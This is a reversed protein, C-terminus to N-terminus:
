KLGSSVVGSLHITATSFDYPDVRSHLHFTTSPIHFARFSMVGSWISFRGDLVKSVHFLSKRDTQISVYIAYLTRNSKTNSRTPQFVPALNKLWDSPTAIAIAIANNSEVTM